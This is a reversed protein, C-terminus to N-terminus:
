RRTTSIRLSRTEPSAALRDALGHIQCTIEGTITDINGADILSLLREHEDVLDHLDAFSRHNDAFFLRLQSEWTRWMSLLLKHGSLEYFTRHFSMHADITRSIDGEDAGCEMERLARTLKARGGSALQPMALEVAYPEVRMRVSAIEAIDHATVEAVFAGKFAVKRVLGEDALMGLAERLPARSVGLDAALHAERLQSGAALTGDLVARRLVDAVNVPTTRQHIRQFPNEKMPMRRLTPSPHDPM